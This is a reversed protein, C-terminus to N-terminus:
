EFCHEIGFVHRFVELRAISLKEQVSVHIFKLVPVLVVIEFLDM